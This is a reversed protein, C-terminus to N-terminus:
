TGGQELKEAVVDTGLPDGWERFLNVGDVINRCWCGDLFQLSVKAGEVVVAPDDRM